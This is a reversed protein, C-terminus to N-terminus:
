RGGRLVDCSFCDRHSVKKGGLLGCKAGSCGCGETSRHPCAKMQKTLELAETASPPLRDCRHPYEAPDSLLYFWLAEFQWPTLPPDTHEDAYWRSRESELLLWRWFELPRATIRHRPVAYQAGYGFWLPDPQPCTFVYSWAAPNFWPRVTGYIQALANGYRVEFGGGNGTHEVRDQAKIHDPPHDPSYRATLSCLDTYEVGLRGVFDPAHFLADGQAFYTWEALSDYHRVIHWLMSHSERGVNSLRVQRVQRKVQVPESGKDYLSVFFEAPVEDLWALDEKYRCVVLERKLDTPRDPHPLASTPKERVEAECLRKVKELYAGGRKAWDCFPTHKTRDVICPKDKGAPCHECRFM